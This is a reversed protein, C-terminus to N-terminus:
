RRRKSKGPWNTREHIFEKPDLEELLGDREYDLNVIERKAWLLSLCGRYFPMRLSAVLTQFSRSIDPISRDAITVEIERVLRQMWNVQETTDALLM